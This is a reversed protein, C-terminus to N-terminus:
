GCAPRSPFSAWHNQAPLLRTRAPPPKTPKDPQSTSWSSTCVAASAWRGRKASPRDAAARMDSISGVRGSFMFLSRARLRCKRATVTSGVHRPSPQVQRAHVRCRDAARPRRPRGAPAFRPLRSTAPPEAVPLHEARARTPVRRRRPGPQRRPAHALRAPPTHRGRHPNRRASSRARTPSCSRSVLSSSPQSACASAGTCHYRWRPSAPAASAAMLRMRGLL